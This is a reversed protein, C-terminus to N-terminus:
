LESVKLAQGHLMLCICRLELEDVGMGKLLFKFNTDTIILGSNVAIFFRKMRLFLYKKTNNLRYM